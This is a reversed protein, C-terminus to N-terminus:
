SGEPVEPEAPPTSAAPASNGDETDIYGLGLQPTWQLFDFGLTVAGNEFLYGGSLDAGFKKEKAFPFYSVGAAVVATNADDDSMIKATIGWDEVSTGFNYSIGFFGGAGAQAQAVLGFLLFSLIVLHKFM